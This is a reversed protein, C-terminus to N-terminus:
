QQIEKQCQDDVLRPQGAPQSASQRRQAYGQWLAIALMAVTVGAAHLLLLHALIEM